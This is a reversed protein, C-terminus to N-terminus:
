VVAVLAQESRKRPELWTPLYSGTRLKPIELAITGVRTDWQRTRTGNRQTTRDETREYRDAGIQASVEADMLEHVMWRVAERLFDEGPEQGKRMVDLLTMTEDAM